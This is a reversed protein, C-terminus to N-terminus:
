KLIERISRGAAAATKAENLSGDLNLVKLFRGNKDFVELHDKHLGDLYYHDGKRLSGANKKVKYIAQNDYFRGTKRSLSKIGAGFATKFFESMNDVSPVCSANHVLFGPEGIYYTHTNAVSFNYVTSHGEQVSVESLSVRGHLTTLWDTVLLDEANVWEGDVYFPHEQTAQLITGDTVEVNIIQYDGEHEILHVVEQFVQEDTTENYSLVFDGIEIAEIPKLGESTHVLTGAVFSNQMCPIVLDKGTKNKYKKLIKAAVGTPLRSLLISTAFQRASFEEEGTAILFVDYASSAINATTLIGNITSAVSFSGLSFKGTPDIRNVPDVNGYLYKHLSVPESNRGVWTDMQTFRGVGQDYYRARLYYQELGADRQEGTYRYGNETDGTSALEVGFADYHYTDTVTSSEDALARTSGHGDYLYYTTGGSREQALLDDGYTYSVDTTGNSVEALVQAYDRNSDVVFQITAGNETKRTRIGDANYGYSATYGPRTTEVLKNRGDYRYRTVQSDETETLTNGNADYSYSVGGQRTLRDNADYTYATHVGDIISYTRNGVKDYQYEASYDGNVPDTITEGTLRYLEDYAYTTSRGNHREQMGIRRGTPDLEYRYDAVVAGSGNTTTLAVLRNLVDYDYATRNGNPYSISARNGVNDYRYVTDGLGADVTALRNLADFTYRTSRTQDATVVDLQVRNGAEDYGYSLVSGDPQIEKTLRNMADYQYTTTGEPTTASVRNGAADYSFTEVTGDGYTVRVLRDNLDYQYTSTQGNFDTHSLRNGAADYSFSETQGMPLTRSLVRGQNDYTWRTTRGEADTQTLKNGAADYSFTTTGDLADTVKVLRGLADYEYGTVRGNQDTRSTRRGLADYDETVKSGDHYVTETRQDLANYTYRTTHGNADTESILNGDADYDFSHRNGLADIVATRRGAADYEYRPVNGNADTESTVRGAADYATSTHSGDAFDTRIVRNLADYTYRTIRGLRDTETAVNGEADYSKYAVTGDPYRTETVRGFADFVYETRRGLADVTATQNGAVDYESYVTSGDPYHTETVRNNADYVYSTTEAVPSGSVERERTETLVNGNADYTYRTTEGLPNTETLKNGDGDYTYTTANGGADISKSVQGDANINNGATKGDPDTVSLLNGVSDYTNKYQNGRADTITLEQGRSNYTYAVTNGLGDTQTLQNNRDDFTASTTHGLPDLQSLQNGHADYTYQWTQGAADVKTTVNGRDDYYYLTTNGRRDTVVSQRGEIDHNFETRNGENDEQAVLRGSDDYINRVLRRGLPDIIELLGHSRNYTYETTNAMADASAVLDGEPTYQYNLVDGNPTTISRIRGDSDRNFTIAKGSSHFIGDNTYRLTHGNPDVVTEIGFDQNLNYVYGAATTLRYRSPDVARGFTGKELLIGNEYRASSENLAVLESQTNGVPTFVLDVDKIVQYTNCRPSAGVEFREVDGSPLTVTVVPAGLPEVCFDVILNMPGRKYQNITWYSGPVRSEEVKVDQYGISWGHGFDLDEFRRRSDYTRTVRIPLGAMPINLDELTISFNGVKLDGEVQLSLMDSASQGNVDLAIVAVDWQGNTLLSPDFLAVPASTQNTDGEAIVQWNDDGSPAILVQYAVLNDDTITGIIDTPATVITGSEPGELTVVPAVTDSDDEITVFAQRTVTSESDSVTATITHRGSGEATWYTRGYPNVPLPQGDVDVDVTFDGRGGETFVDVVVTDGANVSDPTVLVTADLPLAEEQVRISTSQLTRGKGDDAFYVVDHLGIQDQTPTWTVQGEASVTLGDPQTMAGYTLADGDADTAVLQYLYMEGAVAEFTPRSTIEPYNNSSVDVADLVFSQTVYAKGDSVRIRVDHAGIQDAAPTWQLAGEGSLTMGAPATDLAYSLSDGDEDRAIVDYHYIEGVIAPSTPLSTIEPIENAAVPANVGISYSQTSAAGRTDTVRVVVDHVQGAQSSAPTWSIQSGELVMGNPAQDLSFSFGDGDSDSATIPYTYLSDALAQTEPTSTILPPHNASENVPLTLKQSALGGRGDDVQIEVIATDGVSEAPALWSFLGSESLTMGAESQTLSFTLADGDPDNATVQYDFRQGAYVAGQPSSTITPPQNDENPDAVEILFYQKTSAGRTDLATVEASFVGVIDTGPTWRIIGSVGDITMGPQSRSLLYVVEDGDPDSAQATYSFSEGSQIAGPPESDFVPALNDPPTITVVHTQEAVAGLLDTARVNLSYIGEPLGEAKLQGTRENLEFGDPADTLEFRHADGKDPDSVEFDFTYVEGVVDTSSTPSTFVPLDNDDAISVAFKQRDFLGAEDYVRTDVIAARTENNDTACEVLDESGAVTAKLAQIITADDVVLSAQTSEGPQLGDVTVTGLTEEGTWFHDHSFTVSLPGDVPALGRNLVTVRATSTAQDYTIGSVTIDPLSLADRDPFTNLRFSNHTLWSPTPSAPVTLDDNINNINYAHQNWISRTPAWSGTESELVRLGYALDPNSSSSGVIIEAQRDNDVDAIVPYELTTGSRNDLEVRIEGTSGDYIRLYYEDGYVVEIRGDAEFDFLSSGTRHSSSDRTPSRWKVSGDTEFVVYYRAGAIGVEVEGDGDFDGVTPAGGFGGGPISKPGWIVQGDHSTLTVYGGGVIVIEAYDDQNFNGVATFGDSPVADAFSLLDGTASYIARGAIVEQAGDLNVDAATPVLGYSRDGGYDKSGSWLLQGDANFVNRGMVIEASGDGDLDAITVADRTGSSDTFRPLGTAFRNELRGEHNLILLETRDFSPVVIEPFGDGDLDAVAVSGVGTVNLDDRRWKVEGTAGDLVVVFVDRANGNENGIAVIDTFDKFDVVGDGNDDTLQAAMTPGYIRARNDYWQWKVIPDLQGDLVKPEGVCFLNENTRNDVWRSDADWSILGTDGTIGMGEPAHELGYALVDGENPDIADVDYQYGSVESGAVVPPTVIQPPLNEHIVLTFTQESTGGRLDTVLVTVDYEGPALAGPASTFRGTREDLYLGEPGSVLTFTHADGVDTDSVEVQYDFSQGGELVTQPESDISPAANVDEVNLAYIQADSLGDPDTVHLKVLAARTANNGIECEEIGDASELAVSIDDTLDSEAVRIAPYEDSGSSLGDVGAKGLLKGEEPSGAYFAVELPATVNALGRNTLQVSLQQSGDPSDQILVHGLRVDPNGLHDLAVPLYAMVLSTTALKTTFLGSNTDWTGNAQQADLLYEINATIAADTIEPDQYDLALGVWASTLPDSADGTANRSWGGDARQRSRLQTDLLEIADAVRLRMADTAIFPEIEALGVLRFVRRLSDNENTTIGALLHEAISPMLMRYFDSLEQQKATLSTLKELDSLYDSASQAVLATMALSTRLWGSNHDTTWYARKGDIVVRNSFFELGKERVAFTRDRDPVANLAWLAFATQNKAYNPHSRRIAGDSLQSGLIETLLYEAAEEDVDAKEKSSEMGLLSQTQIHCGLCRNQKHWALAQPAVYDSADSIATRVRYFLPAIYAAGSTEDGDEYEKVSGTPVVYCQKNFTPVSQTFEPSAFWRIEGTQADLSMADPGRDLGFTLVDENPDSATVLYSYTDREPTETQPPSTIEPPLNPQIVTITITATAFLEGDTVQYALSEQGEFQPFPKYELNPATGTFVGHAPQDVLSYQIDESDIDHGVLTIAVTDGGETEAFIDEATPPDNVPTVSLEYDAPLSDLEGDNAVYKLRDKGAYNVDPVYVFGDGSQVVTGHEPATVVSFALPSKEIDRGSFHLPIRTDEPGTAAGPDAVPADNVPLVDISVTAVGSLQEGDHVRFTLSDDGAYNLGPSYTIHGDSQDIEGHQPPTLIEYHLTNGDEDEAQLDFEVDTDEDTTVQSDLSEPRHNYCRTYREFEFSVYGHGNLKYDQIRIVAFRAVSYNLGAGQGAHDGWVPVIINRGLLADMNNRIAKANKVGPAGQVADGINLQNDFDNAPHRYSRSTGPPILASALTPTDNKGQWSLWSYNGPGTGLEIGRFIQGPAANVLLSQSVTLPYLSCFDPGITIDDTESFTEAQVLPAFVFSLAALLGVVRNM